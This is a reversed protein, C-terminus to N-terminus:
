EADEASPDDDDDFDEYEDPDEGDDSDECDDYKSPSLDSGTPKPGFRLSPKPLVSVPRSIATKLSENGPKLNTSAACSSGPSLQIPRVQRKFFAGDNKIDNASPHDLLAPREGDGKDREADAFSSIDLFENLRPRQSTVPSESAPVQEDKTQPFELPDVECLGAERLSKGKVKEKIQALTKTEIVEAIKGLDNGFRAVAEKLQGVETSTWKMNEKQEDNMKQVQALKLDITLQALRGFAVSAQQFIEAVRSSNAM